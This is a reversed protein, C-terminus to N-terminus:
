KPNVLTGRTIQWTREALSRGPNRSQVAIVIGDERMARQVTKYSVNCFEATLPISTFIVKNVLIGESNLFLSNDVKTVYWNYANASNKSVKPRTDPTLKRGTAAKSMAEESHLRGTAIRRLEEKRAPTYAEKM